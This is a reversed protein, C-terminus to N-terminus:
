RRSPNRPVSAGFHKRVVARLGATVLDKGVVPPQGPYQARWRGGPLPELTVGEQTFIRNAMAPYESPNYAEYGGEHRNVRMARIANAPPVVLGDINRAHGVWWDLWHGSLTSVARRGTDYAEGDQLAKEHLFARTAQLVRECRDLDFRDKEDRLKGEMDVWFTREPVVADIAKLQASINDPGLGGAYGPRRADYHGLQPWAEPELGRGGSSDVLTEFAHEYALKKCMEANHANWQLIVRTRQETRSLRAILARLAQEDKSKARINLQVRGFHSALEFLRATEESLPAGNPQVAELMSRVSNGCLHLAIAMRKSNAKRAFKELWELSPYRPALGAQSPSYLVGWEVFTFAASIRAMRAFSTKEGAGTLTVYRLHGM